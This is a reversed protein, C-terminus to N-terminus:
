KAAALVKEVMEQPVKAYFQEYLPQCIERFPEKDVETVNLGLKTMEELYVTEMDDTWKRQYDRAQTAADMIIAQQEPSLKDYSGKSMVIPAAGYSHQTLSYYKAVEVYKGSQFTSIAQEGGDITKQQLATYVEGNAMPVPLTGLASFATTYIENEMVRIKLGKLDAPTQVPTKITYVNRFGNEMYCLGVLNQAEMLQFLDSGVEGDLVEYAHEKSEFLYPLDFLSMEPVFNGIPATSVMAIDLTNMQMAELMDREQGLLGNPYVEVVIEGGSLEKVLEAFKLVGEGFNGENPQVHGAKLVVKAGQAPDSASAEQTSSNGCAALSLVLLAAFISSFIRNKM